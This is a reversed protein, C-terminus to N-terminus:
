LHVHKEILEGEETESLSISQTAVEPEKRKGPREVTFTVRSQLEAMLETVFAQCKTVFEQSPQHNVAMLILNIKIFERKEHETVCDSFIDLLLDINSKIIDM